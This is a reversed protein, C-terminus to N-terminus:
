DPKAYLPVYFDSGNSEQMSANNSTSTASTSGANLRGNTMTGNAITGFASKATILASYQGTAGAHIDESKGLTAPSFSASQM